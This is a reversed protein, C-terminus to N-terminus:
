LGNETRMPVQASVTNFFFFFASWNFTFANQFSKYDAELGFASLQFSNAPLGRSVHM